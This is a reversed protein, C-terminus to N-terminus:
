LLMLPLHLHNCLSLAPTIVTCHSCLPHPFRHRRSFAIVATAKMRVMARSCICIPRILDFLEPNFFVRNMQRQRPLEMQLFCSVCNCGTCSDNKMDVNQFRGTAWKVSLEAVPQPFIIDSTWKGRLWTLINKSVHCMFVAWIAIIATNLRNHRCLQTLHRCESFYPRKWFKCLRKGIWQVCHHKKWIGCPM